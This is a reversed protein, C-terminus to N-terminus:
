GKPLAMSAEPSVPTDQWSMKARSHSRNGTFAAAQSVTALKPFPSRGGGGAPEQAPGGQAVDLVGPSRSHNNGRWSTLESKATLHAERECPNM